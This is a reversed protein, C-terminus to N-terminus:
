ISILQESHFLIHVETQPRIVRQLMERRLITSDFLRRPKIDIRCTNELMLSNEVGIPHRVFRSHPNTRDLFSRLVDIELHEVGSGVPVVWLNIGSQPMSFKALNKHRLM